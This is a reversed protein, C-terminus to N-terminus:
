NAPQRTMVLSVRIPLHDSEFTGDNEVAIKSFLLETQAQVVLSHEGDIGLRKLGESDPKRIVGQVDVVHERGMLEVIGQASFALSTESEQEVGLIQELRFGISPFDESRLEERAHKSRLDIGTDVSASTMSIKATVPQRLDAPDFRLMGEPAGTFRAEFREGGAELTATVHTGSHKIVRYSGAPLGPLFADFTGAAISALDGTPLVDLAGVPRQGTAFSVVGLVLPVLAAGRLGNRLLSSLRTDRARLLRAGVILALGIAIALGVADLGLWIPGSDTLRWGLDPDAVYLQKDFDSYLNGSGQLLWRTSVLALGAVFAAFFWRSRTMTFRM